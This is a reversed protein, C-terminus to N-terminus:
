VKISEFADQVLMSRLQRVIAFRTGIRVVGDLIRSQPGKADKEGLRGRKQFVLTAQLM